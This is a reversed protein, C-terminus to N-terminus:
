GGMENGSDRSLDALMAARRIEPTVDEFRVARDTRCPPVCSFSVLMTSGFSYTGKPVIDKKAIVAGCCTCPPIVKGGEGPSLPGTPQGLLPLLVQRGKEGEMPVGEDHLDEADPSDTGERPLAQM